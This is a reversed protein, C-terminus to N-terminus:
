PTLANRARYRRNKIQNGCSSMACWRRSTNKSADFFAWRCAARDCTKVRALTGAAECRLYAASVAAVAENLPTARGRGTLLVQPTGTGDGALRVVVPMRSLVANARKVREAAGDEIHGNRRTLARLGERLSCLDSIAAARWRTETVGRGHLGRGDGSRGDAVWQGPASAAM